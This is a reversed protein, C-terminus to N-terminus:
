PTPSSVSSHSIIRVIDEGNKKIKKRKEDGTQFNKRIDKRCASRIALTIRAFQPPGFADWQTAQGGNGQDLYKWSNRRVVSSLKM